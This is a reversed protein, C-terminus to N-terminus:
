SPNGTEYLVMGQTEIWRTFRSPPTLPVLDILTHLEEELRAALEYLKWGSIGDCALDLDRAEAPSEAASGFLILRTAGYAKALNIAQEIQTTNVAM